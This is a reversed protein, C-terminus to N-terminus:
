SPAARREAGRPLLQSVLGVLGWFLAHMQGTLTVGFLGVAATALMVLATVAEARVRRVAGLVALLAIIALLTTPVAGFVLYSRVWESAPDHVPSRARAVAGVTTNAAAGPGFWTFYSSDLLVANVQQRHTVTAAENSSGSLSGRLDSIQDAGVAFAFVVFVAVLGLLRIALQHRAASVGLLALGFAAAAIGTRSGTSLAGAGCLAATAGWWVSRTRLFQAASGVLGTALALSAVVPQGFPGEARVGGFRELLGASPTGLSRRGIGIFPNFGTWREFITLAAAVALATLLGRLVADVSRGGGAGVLKLAAMPLLPGAVLAIFVANKTVGFLLVSSLLLAAVYCLTVTDIWEFRLLRVRDGFRVILAASVFLAPALVVSGAPVTPGWYWPVVVVVTVAAVVFADEWAFSAVYSVLSAFLLLAALEIGRSGLVALAFVALVWGGVFV